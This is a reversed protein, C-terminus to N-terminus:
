SLKNKDSDCGLVSPFWNQHDWTEGNKFDMMVQLTSSFESFTSFRMKWIKMFKVLLSPNGFTPCKPDGFNTKSHILPYKQYFYGVQINKFLNPILTTPPTFIVGFTWIIQWVNVGGVVRIGFLSSFYRLLKNKDSICGLVSLFWNQHDWTEWKKFDMMIQLTSSFESISSFRMKWIKM